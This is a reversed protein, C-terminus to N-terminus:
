TKQFKLVRRCAVTKAIYPHLNAPCTVRPPYMWKELIKPTLGGQPPHKGWIKKLIEIQFYLPTMARVWSFFLCFFIKAGSGGPSRPTAEFTSSNRKKKLKLVVDVPWLKLSIPICIQLCTVRPSLGSKGFIKPTLGGQPSNKGLIKQLIEIQFNSPTMARVWTVIHLFIKVIPAMPGSSCRGVCPTWRTPSRSRANGRRQLRTIPCTVTVALILQMALVPHAACCINSQQECTRAPRCPGRTGDTQESSTVNLWM